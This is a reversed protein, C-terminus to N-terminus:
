PLSLRKRLIWETALLVVLAALWWWLNRVYIREERWSVSTEFLKKDRLANELGTLNNFEFVGGGTESAIKRLLPQNRKLIATEADYSMVSFSGNITRDALGPSKITAAYQYSGEPLRGIQASYIGPKEKKFTFVGLGSAKIELEIQASNDPENSANSVSSEFLVPESTTFVPKVPRVFGANKEPPAATWHFTNLVLQETFTRAEQDPSVYWSFFGTVLVYASKSVGGSHIALAAGEANSPVPGSRFLIQTGAKPESARNVGALPKFRQFAGTLGSSIPHKVSLDTSVIQVPRWDPFGSFQLPFWPFRQVLDFRSAPGAFVLKSNEKWNNSFPDFKALQQTNPLGAIVIAEVTDPSIRPGQGGLWVGAATMFFPYLRVAPDSELIERIVKVDPSIDFVFFVTRIRNNRVDVSSANANNQISFEGQLPTIEVRYTHLGESPAPIKFSVSTRKGNQPILVSKKQLSREGERLIVEATEGALKDTEIWAKLDIASGSLAEEPLEIEGVRVDAVEGSDGAAVIFVPLITNLTVYAPDKGITTNGDTILVVADADTEASVTELAGALNTSTSEFTLSAGDFSTVSAGFLVTKLETKDKLLDIVGNVTTKAQEAGRYVGKTVAMSSSNDVALVIRKKSIEQGFYEFQPNTVLVAAISLSCGRLAVFFFRPIGRTDTGSYMWWALAFAGSILFTYTLFPLM